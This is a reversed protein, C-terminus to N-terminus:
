VQSNSVKIFISLNRHITTRSHPHNTRAVSPHKYVLKSSIFLLPHDSQKLNQMCYSYHPSQLHQQKSYFLVHSHLCPNLSDSDSERKHHSFCAHTTLPQLNPQQKILFLARSHSPSISDTLKLLSEEESTAAQM